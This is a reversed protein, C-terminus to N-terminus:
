NNCTFVEQVEPIEKKIPQPQPLQLKLLDKPYYAGNIRKFINENERIYKDISSYSVRNQMLRLTYAWKYFIKSIEAFNIEGEGFKDIYHLASAEYMERVYTDGTRNCLKYLCHKKYFSYFESNNDTFLKAYLDSYFAVYEFFRKGNIIMQTLQFPFQVKLGFSEYMSDNSHQKVLADNLMYLRLYPYNKYKNLNMGKFEDIDDKKFSGANEGKAWKRIRYIYKALNNLLGVNAAKEWEVVCNLREESTNSEMERLHFAKLLDYPELAKGRANQSDFLQFAESIDDLEIKVFECSTLLYEKFKSKQVDNFSSFWEKVRADNNRINYISDAHPFEENLLRMGKEGLYNLILTITVLRQQGDVIDLKSYNNHLIVTGIRYKEKGKHQSDWIDDLLQVINKEKWKYPRQYDPISLEMEILDSLMIYEAPVNKEM